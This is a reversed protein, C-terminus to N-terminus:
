DRKTRIGPTDAPIKEDGYVGQLEPPLLAAIARMVIETHEAALRADHPDGPVDIPPGFRVSVHPKPFQFFGGMVARSNIVAVPVVPVNSQMALRVAGSKGRQLQGSKSRTGEPFMGVVHGSELLQRAADFAALDRRGRHVPFTGIRHLFASLRPDANFIESKAMYFVQRPCAHGILVYDPGPNHNSALVFGGDLPVHERGHVRGRSCLPRLVVSLLWLCKWLFSADRPMVM